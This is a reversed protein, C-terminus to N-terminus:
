GLNATRDSEALVERRLLAARGYIRGSVMLGMYNLLGSRDKTSRFSQDM